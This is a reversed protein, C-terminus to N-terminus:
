FVRIPEPSVFSSSPFGSRTLDTVHNKAPWHSLVAREYGTRSCYYTVLLIERFLFHNLPIRILVFVTWIPTETAKINALTQCVSPLICFSLCSYLVDCPSRGQWSLAGLVTWSATHPLPQTQKKTIGGICGFDTRWVQPPQPLPPSNSVQKKEQESISAKNDVSYCPQICGETPPPSLGKACTSVRTLHIGNM